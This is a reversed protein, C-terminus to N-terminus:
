TRLRFTVVLEDDQTVVPCSAPASLPELWGEPMQDFFLIAGGPGAVWKSAWRTDCTGSTRGTDGGHSMMHEPGFDDGGASPFTLTGGQSPTDLYVIVRVLRNNEEQNSGEGFDSSGQLVNWSEGQGAHMGALLALRAEVRGLNGTPDQSAVFIGSSRAGPESETEIDQAMKKMVEVEQASALNEISMIRPKWSLARVLVPMPVEEPFHQGKLSNNLGHGNEQARSAAARHKALIGRHPSYLVLFAAPAFLVFIQVYFFLVLPRM